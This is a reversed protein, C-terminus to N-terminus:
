EHIGKKPVIILYNIFKFKGGKWRKFLTEKDMTLNGPKEGNSDITMRKNNVIVVPQMSDYIYFEDKNNFGLLTFYHLVGDMDNLMIIPKNESLTKKLYKLRSKGSKLKLIKYSSRIGYSKLYDTIGWPYTMNNGLRSGMEKNVTDLSIVKETYANIITMASAPGCQNLGQRVQITPNIKIECSDKIKDDSFLLFSNFVILILYIKKMLGRLIM